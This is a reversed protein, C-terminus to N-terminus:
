KETIISDLGIEKICDDLLCIKCAAELIATPTWKIDELVYQPIGGLITFHDCWEHNGNPFSPAIVELEAMTWTPMYFVQPVPPKKFDNVMRADSTVCM